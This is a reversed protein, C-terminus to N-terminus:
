KCKARAAIQDAYTNLQQLAGMAQGAANKDFMGGAPVNIQADTLDGRASAIAACSKAAAPDTLKAKAIQLSSVGLLFKAQAKQTRDTLSSDAFMLLPKAGVYNNAKYLNNGAVLAIQGALPADGNARALRLSALASDPRGLDSQLQALTLYGREAKPNRALIKRLQDAAQQTQGAARLTQAYQVQLGDNNPFKAIGRALVEAAKQPQSDSQYAASMNLYYTTDAQATDLKVLEEGVSSARKYDRAALLIRWRLRELAPDGPNDKVVTDIIPVALQPQGASAIFRVVTEALRTDRPNSALLMTYAQVASDQLAAKVATDKVTSAKDQLADGFLTLATRSRPDIALIQRSINLVSDAPMKGAAYANGACARALTGKPYAAIGAQAAAIAEAYKNARALAYCNKEAALQAGAAKLEKSLASAVQEIKGGEFPGLPQTTNVDRTLYLRGEARYGAATKTITGDLIQDGRLNQALARADSAALAECEPFGSAKLTADIFQKSTVTIQKADFDSNIRSQVSEQMKCGAGKETSKFPLVVIVPANPDVKRQYGGGGQAVLTTTGLALSAFTAMM